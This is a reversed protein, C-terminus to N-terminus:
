PWLLARTGTARRLATETLLLRASVMELRLQAIHKFFHRAGLVRFAVLAFGIVVHHAEHFGLAVLRCGAQFRQLLQRRHRVTVRGAKQGRVM